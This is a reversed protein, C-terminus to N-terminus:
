SIGFNEYNRSLVYHVVLNHLILAFLYNALNGPPLEDIMYVPFRRLNAAEKNDKSLSNLKPGTPRIDVNPLRVM